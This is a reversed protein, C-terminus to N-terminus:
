ASASGLALRRFAHAVADLIADIDFPKQLVPISLESLLHAFPLTLTPLNASMLIYARGSSLHRDAAVVGLVGAGDLGPMRLDLLVVEPHPNARFHQLAALGDAAESVVYGADELVSRLSERIPQDDDVVLVRRPSEITVADKESATFAGAKREESAVALRTTCSSM